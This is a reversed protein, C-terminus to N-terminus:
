ESTRDYYVWLIGKTEQIGFICNNRTLYGVRIGGSLSTAETGPIEGWFATNTAALNQEVLTGAVFPLCLGRLLACLFVLCFDIGGLQAGWNGCSKKEPRNTM